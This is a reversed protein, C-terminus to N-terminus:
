GFSPIRDVGNMESSYQEDITYRGVWSGTSGQSFDDVLSEEGGSTYASYRCSEDMYHNNNKIDEEGQSDDQFEVEELVLISKHKVDQDKLTLSSNMAHGDFHYEQEDIPIDLKEQVIKKIDEITSSPRIGTIPIMDGVWHAVTISFTEVVIVDGNDLDRALARQRNTLETGGFMLCQIDVDIKTKRAIVRKLKKVNDEPWVLIKFSKCGRAKITVKAPELVLKSGNVVHHDALTKFDDLIVGNFSLRQKNPPIGHRQEIMLKFQGVPQDIDVEVPSSKEKSDQVDITVKRKATVVVANATQPAVEPHDYRTTLVQKKELQLIAKHTVGQDKFGLFENLLKGNFSYTQQEVPINKRLLMFQRLQLVTDRPNMCIGETLDGKGYAVTVSFREITVTCGDFLGCRSLRQPNKLEKNEFIVHQADMEIGTKKAVTRKIRSVHDDYAVSLRLQEKSPLVVIISMPELNVLTYSTIQQEVLPKADDLLIGNLSFIQFDIPIGKLEKIKDRVDDFYDTPHVDVIFKTGDWHKINLAIDDKDEDPLNAQRPDQKQPKLLVLNSKHKVNQRRLCLSDILAKGQHLLQVDANDIGIQEGLFNKVVELKDEPNIASIAYINGSWHTVTITFQELTLVDNHDVGCEHLTQKNGLEKGDFFLYQTDPDIGSSKSLSRKIKKITANPFLKMRMRKKTGHMLIAIHLKDLVLLDDDRIYQEYLTKADNVDEGGITLRQHEVPIQTLSQIKEKVDDAYENGDVKLTFTESDWDQVRIIM